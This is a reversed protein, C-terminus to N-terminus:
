DFIGELGQSGIYVAGIGGFHYAIRLAEAVEEKTAGADVAQQALYHVGAVAGEAADFAMAMLYKFKKPLAGDTYLLKNTAAIHDMFEPDIACISKLPNAPM